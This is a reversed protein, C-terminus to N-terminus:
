VTSLALFSMTLVAQLLPDIGRTLIAPLVLTVKVGAVKLLRDGVRLGAAAAPSDPQVALVIVVGEFHQLRM